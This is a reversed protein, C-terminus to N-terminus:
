YGPNQELVGNSLDIQSQPVPMLYLRETWVRKQVLNNNLNFIDHMVEPAIEWRRIDMYRQGELALEIRRENRIVKRLSAQSAHLSRDIPPMGSRERIQDLADYVAASPGSLENKAEAYTLLVEAYRILIANAHNDINAKYAAPDVFKRFNYGTQSMNTGTTWEYTFGEEMANWPAGQFLITAYFRPDRNKYENYFQPASDTGDYWEARQEASPPTIKEGTKFSPYSNVLLQTPTVSSWGGLTAHPLYTNFYNADVQPIYQRDLIVEANGENEQLFIGEYSRLGLIFEKKEASGAFDVWQSYDDLQDLKDESSVTFLAYQGLDMVAKAAAAAKQWQGEYLHARAKLALAAGKTIRGKEQTEGGSYSVPLIEAVEKLETLVFNLVEARPTRPVNVEDIALTKTVLPIAGYLNMMRFYSYARIFRVEAKYRELLEPDMNEVKDANELFYNARRKDDYTWGADLSTTFSGSSVETATSEWPYQAHANDAAADDYIFGVGPLTAYIANVAKYVDKESNWFTEQSIDNLPPRELFDKSCSTLVLSCICFLIVKKM